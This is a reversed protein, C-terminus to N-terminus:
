KRGKTWSFLWLGFLIVGGLIALRPIDTYWGPDFFGRLSVNFTPPQPFSEPGPLTAFYEAAQDSAVRLETVYRGVTNKAETSSAGLMMAQMLPDVVWNPLREQLVDLVGGVSIMTREGIVGTSPGPDAQPRQTLHTLRKLSQQLRAVEARGGVSLSELPSFGNESAAFFM